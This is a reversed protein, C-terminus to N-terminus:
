FLHTKKKLRYLIEKSGDNSNDDVFIIEYKISKLSKRIKNTLEFINKEEKYIPIIISIKKM